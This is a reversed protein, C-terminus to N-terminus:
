ACGKNAAVILAITGILCSAGLMLAMAGMCFDLLKDM